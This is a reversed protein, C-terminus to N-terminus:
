NAVPFGRLFGWGAAWPRRLVLGPMVLALSELSGLARWPDKLDGPAGLGQGRAPGIWTAPRGPRIMWRAVRHILAREPYSPWMDKRFGDQKIGRGRAPETAPKRDASRRTSPSTPTGEGM